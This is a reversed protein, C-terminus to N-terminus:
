IDLNKVETAHTEIFNRRQEVSEGMLISFIRDTERMDIQYQAPDDPEESITVRKMARKSPDMTTSWLEEPNMEGLGKFRKIELGTAGHDRILKPVAPLNPIERLRDDALKLAFRTPLFQGAVNEQTTRFYDEITLQWDKILTRIIKEIAASENLDVRTVPVAPEQNEATNTGDDLEIRGFKTEADKCFQTFEKETYFFYREGKIQARIKPLGDAPDYHETLFSRVDIARRRLIGLQVELEDVLNILERLKKGSYEGTTKTTIENTAAVERVLLTTADLGLETLKENLIKENLAYEAKSRKVLQFLPPQAIYVHGQEILPRMHRFFFTLLLTRIHSGDVDADTMIVIKGYRRKALDFDETGIGTGIASIMTRIETHDLIKDIRAKEVNLIKGRLPLIAQHKSERGQKANGGASNGEVLFLETTELDKSSCDWLKGPLNGSELVSKRSLERAKRAAERAQAAQAAKTVIRKGDAPHEELWLSLMENVTQEVFTGVEPNMLRVKTQAEFQPEPVKVSIVATLGERLDEGTPVLDGKLVNQKKAYQNMTRTLAGRFGSLHAGGDINHINNAFALVQESYGDNYQMAIECTLRLQPDEKSFRIVPHLPTKGESLHEVFAKIGEKYSFEEEKGNRDDKLKITIGENLYALERLRTSLTEYRFTIDPFITADPKFTVRTGTRQTHGKNELETVTKGKEFRMTYINGDRYVEVVLWESLANVCSVGVGHLGGSVKYSDRDFKGGAHLMTLVVEVAPRKETEHLDVPIGRGDDRVSLSGDPHVHIIINKCYGAMAEDIANDVVENALHHLGALGTDGIYMSPRLRVAELGELVKISSADYNHPTM